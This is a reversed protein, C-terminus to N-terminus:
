ALREVKEMLSARDLPAATQRTETEVEAVDAAVAEEDPLEAATATLDDIITTQQDTVLNNEANENATAEAAAQNERLEM